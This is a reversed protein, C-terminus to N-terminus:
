ESECNECLNEFTALKPIVKWIKAFKVYSNSIKCNECSSEFTASKLIANNINQLYLMFYLVQM